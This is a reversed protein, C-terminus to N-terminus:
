IELMININEEMKVQGDEMWSVEDCLIGKDKVKDYKAGIKSVYRKFSDSDLAMIQLASYKERNRHIKLKKM